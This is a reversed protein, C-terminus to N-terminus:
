RLFIATVTAANSGDHNKLYVFNKSWETDGATVLANGVQKVIIVKSPVVSLQNRIKVETNAAIETPGYEFSQFNDAFKINRLGSTLEKILSGLDKIIELRFKAM